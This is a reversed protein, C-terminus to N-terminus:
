FGLLLQKQVKQMERASESPTLAKPSYFNNTTNNNVTTTTTSQAGTQALIPSRGDYVGGTSVPYPPDDDEMNEKEKKWFEVKDKLWNVKEEVWDSIETWLSKIGDWLQQFIEKGANFLDEGVSAVTDVISTLINQLAEKVGEWDGTFISIFLDMLGLIINFAGSFCDEIVKLATSIITKVVEIKTAWLPEVLNWFAKFLEVVKSVFESTFDRIGAFNTTWAAVLAAIVGIVIGIPGTLGTLVPGVVSIAQQISLFASILKGVILLVPGIAALIMGLGVVFEQTSEDMSSLWDALKGLLEIGNQLYLLLITGFQLAVENSQNKLIALQSATTSYRQEAENTLALNEEWAQQGLELSEAFLDGAGAARLLTDRLRVESIGMDDLVAIASKGLASTDQLGTIFAILANAANDKFATAFQESSMGAVEAFQQLSDGGQEVALQMDVMVKSISSGGAEAAIGVSSLAGAFSLIQAETLGIQAGAGAIRLGMSVIESETTALNNGLAVVTSGLSEFQDQPMQTINALRALSSAAEESSLNTADGLMIMTKTFDLINETKIGLQGAAESVAAIASASQPMETSLDIIGQRLQELEQETADVTKRVGAFASEFSVASTLATAGLGALPITFSKTLTSGTSTLGSSLGALRDQTTKTKDNFSQLDSWASSLGSQFKSTDLELYGVARGVDVSM